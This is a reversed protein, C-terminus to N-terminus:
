FPNGQMRLQLETQQTAKRAIDFGPLIFIRINNEEIWQRYKTPVREWAVEPSESSEWVLSGGKKLGELPNTHTFAKPDCCLVVDVHNLECNVKIQSPAVTLYYNTPAGKKESGYKPNAMVYLKEVLFGDADYAPNRESVFKGFDGIISGLNKGTTIMGWGGISHFRVAIAGEPLLSPTDRSIVAYPHDVGLVFYTAGDAASKGDKRRTQGTAFEYAGLTHEPRFDRSGLGYAGRFLRPTEETTLAPLYGGFKHSELGKGLSVLIDRALPTYGAM